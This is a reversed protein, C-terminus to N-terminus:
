LQPLLIRVQQIGKMRIAQVTVTRIHLSAGTVGGGGGRFFFAKSGHQPSSGAHVHVQHFRFM